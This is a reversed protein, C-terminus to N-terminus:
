FLEYARGIILSQKINGCLAYRSDLSDPHPSAVFYEGAPIIGAAAPWLAVNARSRPKAVGIRRGAVWFTSGVRSVVDGPMGVVQKIFVTGRPYTAGGQWRYAVLDGRAFAAGKRHLYVHGSLSGTMNETLAYDYGACAIWVALLAVGMVCSAGLFVRRSARCAAFLMPSAAIVWILLPFLMGKM